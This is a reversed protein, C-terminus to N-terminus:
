QNLYAEPVILREPASSLWGPIGSFSVETDEDNRFNL